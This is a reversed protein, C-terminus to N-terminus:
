HGAVARRAGNANARSSATIDINARSTVTSAGNILTQM